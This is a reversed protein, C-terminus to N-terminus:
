EAVIRETRWAGCDSCQRRRQRGGVKAVTYGRAQSAMSGCVRCASRVGVHPHQRIYPRLKTYVYELVDVDRRCHEVIYKIAKKDGAMARVWIAGSLPTEEIPAGVAAAVSALRNSHLAFNYRAAYYCDVHEYGLPPLPSLGAMMMRTNLFKRDFEKGYFSVIVDAEDTLIRHADKILATDNTPDKAHAPYDAISLVHTRKAGYYKYGFALCYGFDGKLHSTEIDYILTRVPDSYGKM